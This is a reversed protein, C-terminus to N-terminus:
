FTDYECPEVRPPMCATLAGRVVVHRRFREEFGGALLAVWLPSGVRTMLGIRTGAGFVGARAFESSEVVQNVGQHVKYVLGDNIKYCEGPKSYRWVRWDEDRQHYAGWVEPLWTSMGGTPVPGEAFGADHSHTWGARLHGKLAADNSVGLYATANFEDMAYMALDVFLSGGRHQRVVGVNNVLGVDVLVGDPKYTMPVVGYCGVPRGDCYAVFWRGRQSIWGVYEGDYPFEYCASLLAAVVAPSTAEGFWYRTM